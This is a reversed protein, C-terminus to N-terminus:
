ESFIEEKKLVNKLNQKANCVHKVMAKEAKVQDREVFAQFIKRHEDAAAKMRGPVHLSFIRPRQTFHHFNSLVNWLPKSKCAKFIIEHFETDLESWKEVDEKTTYFDTLELIEEMRKLDDETIKNVARKAALGEILSRIEFIDEIDQVTIGSVIVGKNPISTVLGELELQRLAERVPTRSVGLEEALKMEVLSEGTKYRGKLIDERIKNHIRNRLSYKSLARETEFAM